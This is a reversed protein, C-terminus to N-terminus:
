VVELSPDVAAAWATLGGELNVVEAVGARAAIACAAASRGGARCVFVATSDAPIEGVRAPLNGLPIHLSGPLHGAEYEYPERVDVLVFDRESITLVEAEMMRTFRPMTSVGVAIMVNALGPGLTAMVALALLLTPFALMADTFGM